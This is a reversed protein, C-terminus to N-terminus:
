EKQTQSAPRQTPWNRGFVALRTAVRAHRQPDHRPLAKFLVIGLPCSLGGFVGCVSHAVKLLRSPGGPGRIGFDLATEAFGPQRRVGRLVVSRQCLLVSLAPIQQRTEFDFGVALDARGNALVANGAEGRYSLAKGM